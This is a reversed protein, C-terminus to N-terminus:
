CPWTNIAGTLRQQESCVTDNVARRILAQRVLPTFIHNIILGSCSLISDEEEWSIKEKKLFVWSGSGNSKDKRLVSWHASQSLGQLHSTQRWKYEVILSPVLLCNWVLFFGKRLYDQNLLLVSITNITFNKFSHLPISKKIKILILYSANTVVCCLWPFNCHTRWKDATILLIKQLYTVPLSTKYQSLLVNSTIMFNDLKCWFMEWVFTHRWWEIDIHM